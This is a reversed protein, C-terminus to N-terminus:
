SNLRVPLVPPKNQMNDKKVIHVCLMLLVIHYMGVDLISVLYCILKSCFFYQSAFQGHLSFKTDDREHLNKVKM